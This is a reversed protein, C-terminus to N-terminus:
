LYTLWKKAPNNAKYTAYWRCAFYLLLLDIAYVLYLLPLGWRNPEDIETFPATTYWDQHASGRIIFNVALASVHILLIHLLYYFMPVRGFLKLVGAFWGKVKEALPVFAILPGLTMLLYLQTPPYKKQNLLRFIFPPADPKLPQQLATICGAVLFIAISLLGVWLCIRKRNAPEMLMINGFGYGAMMVGVWPIIVFLVTVGPFGDSGSPYFFEWFWGFSNRWGEPLVQPVYHFIQQFAIIALGTIGVALPKLRVFAALLVMCWGLMWIVGALTFNAYNFNFMWFFRIVTLELLVLLLGRTVLFRSLRAKNNLKLGYLFASTGALFVFGPACFHTVWRTFFVGQTQGGAPIGSYVRVHDIAMLVMIAGRLIDISQLRAAVSKTETPLITATPM